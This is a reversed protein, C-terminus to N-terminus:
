LVDDDPILSAYNNVIDVNEDSSELKKDIDITNVSTLKTKPTIRSSVIYAIIDSIQKHDQVIILNDGMLQKWGDMVSQNNGNCGEKVHLHYVHYSKRAMALLEDATFDKHQGSGMIDILKHKPLHKLTPEDGITFLFGKQKRKERCDISTKTAAFYWALLYSEGDNGGGGNELYLDTLWKDLLEDSSEFQGIQLPSFDCEHDGIGMFLLQPHKIGKKIINDMIHPLGDKVLYSPIYGMSATVDLALVIALSNPHEESDRAERVTVGKPDMSPNLKNASFINSVSKTYYGSSTARSTRSSISYSGGGM